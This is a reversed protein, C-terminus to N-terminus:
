LSTKCRKMNGHEDTKLTILIVWKNGILHRERTIDVFTWTKSESLSNIEEQMADSWRICDPANVVQPYNELLNHIIHKAELAFVSFDDISYNSPLKVYDVKGPNDKIETSHKWIKLNRM